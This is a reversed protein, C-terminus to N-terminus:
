VFIRVPSTSATSITATSIADLLKPIASSLRRRFETTSSPSITPSRTGRSNLRKWRPGTAARAAFYRRNAARPLMWGSVSLIPFRARISRQLQASCLNKL